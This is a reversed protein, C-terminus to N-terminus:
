KEDGKLFNHLPQIIHETTLNIVPMLIDRAFVRKEEELWQDFLQEGEKYDGISEWYQAAFAKRVKDTTPINQHEENHNSM